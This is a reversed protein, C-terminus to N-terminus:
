NYHLLLRFGLVGVPTRIIGKYYNFKISKRTLSNSGLKITYRRKKSNGGVGEFV